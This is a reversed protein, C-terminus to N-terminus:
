RMNRRGEHAPSRTLLMKLEDISLAPQRRHLMAHCNPCVPRLDKVPDVQYDPGVLSLEILHHVHIFGQGIEGYRESFDLDCAACRCGWRALAIKRARPDREHRNVEVRQVTGEPFTMAPDPEEPSRVTLGGAHASWLDALARVADDPIRVGGAQIRDWPVGPITEKLMKVRLRDSPALVTDWAIRM